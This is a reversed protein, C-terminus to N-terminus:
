SSNCFRIFTITERELVIYVHIHAYVKVHLMLPKYFGDRSGLNLFGSKFYPNIVAESNTYFYKWSSFIKIRVFYVFYCLSSFYSCLFSEMVYEKFINVSPM